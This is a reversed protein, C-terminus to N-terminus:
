RPGEEIPLSVPPLGRYGYLTPFLFFILPTAFGSRSLLLVTPFPPTLTKAVAGYKYWCPPIRTPFGTNVDSFDHPPPGSLPLDGKAGPRPALLPLVMREVSLSGTPFLATSSRCPFRRVNKRWRSPSRTLPLGGPLFQLRLREIGGNVGSFLFYPLCASPLNAFVLMFAPFPKDKLLTPTTSVPIKV